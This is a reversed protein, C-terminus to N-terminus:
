KCYPVTRYWQILQITPHLTIVPRFVQSSTHNYLVNAAYHLSLALSLPTFGFANSPPIMPLSKDDKTEIEVTQFSFFFLVRRCETNYACVRVTTYRSLVVRTVPYVAADTHMGVRVDMSASRRRRRRRRLTKINNLFTFTSEAAASSSSATTLSSIHAM